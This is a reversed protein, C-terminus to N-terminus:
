YSLKAEIDSALFNLADKPTSATPWAATVAQMMEKYKDIVAQAQDALANEANAQWLLNGNIDTDNNNLNAKASIGKRHLVTTGDDDYFVVEASATVVNNGLYSFTSNEIKVKM